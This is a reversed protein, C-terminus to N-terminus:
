QNTEGGPVSVNFLKGQFEDYSAVKRGRTEPLLAFCVTAIVLGATCLVLLMNGTGMADALSGGIIGMLFQTFNACGFIIGMSVGVKAPTMNPLEMPLTTFAPYWAASAAGIIVQCVKVFAINDSLIAGLIGFLFLAQLPWIFLKRNKLPTAIFVAAVIAILGAAPMYTMIGNSFAALEAPDPIISAFKENFFVVFFTNVLAYAVYHACAGVTMIKIYKNSGVEKVVSWDFKVKERTKPAKETEPESDPLGPYTDRYFIVWLICAVLAIGGFIMLTPGLNNNLAHYIGLIWKFLVMLGLYAIGLTLANMLLRERPPFWKMVVATKVSYMLGFGIGTIFRFLLMLAYSKFIVSVGVMIGGFAMISLALTYNKKIGINAMIVGGIFSFVGMCFGVLTSFLGYQAKSLGLTEMIPASLGSMGFNNFPQALLACILLFLIVFRYAPYKQKEM